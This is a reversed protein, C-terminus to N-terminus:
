SVTFLKDFTDRCSKALHDVSVGRIQACYDYIECIYAPENQKGRYPVPALYPSDTELLLQKDPVARLCADFDSNKFTVIGSFSVTYGAAVIETLDEFSGTFCHFIANTIKLSKCINLAEREVGRAHIIAPINHDRAIELQRVFFPRQEEFPPYSENIGDIGIEGIAVISEESSLLDLLQQEWASPAAGIEPPSIGITPLISISKNQITRKISLKSSELDTAINLITSVGANVARSVTDNFDTESQQLLHAHSDILM